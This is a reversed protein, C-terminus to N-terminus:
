TGVFQLRGSKVTWPIRWALSSSHIAVGKELPVEWGLSRIRTEQMVPLNFPVLGKMLAGGEHDWRVSTVEWLGWRWISDCHLCPKLMYIMPYLGHLGNCGWKQGCVYDWSWISQLSGVMRRIGYEKQPKGPPESLLSDAQLAPSRPKIGPHPLNGPPPFPLGSWYEQKSLGMSLPAQCAVTWPTVFLRVRSLSQCM